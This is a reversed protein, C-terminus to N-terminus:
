LRGQALDDGLQGRDLPQRPRGALLPGRAPQRLAELPGAALDLDLRGLEARAIGLHVPRQRGGAREGPQRASPPARPASVAASIASSM